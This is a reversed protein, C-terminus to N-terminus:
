RKMNQYCLLYICINSGWIIYMKPRIDYNVVSKNLVILVEYGSIHGRVESNLLIKLNKLESVIQNTKVFSISITDAINFGNILKKFIKEKKTKFIKKSICKLDYKSLM